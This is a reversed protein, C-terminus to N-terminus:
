SSPMPSLVAPPGDTTHTETSDCGTATIALLILGILVTINRRFSIM